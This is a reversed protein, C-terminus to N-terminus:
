EGPVDAEEEPLLSELHDRLRVMLAEHSAKMRKRTSKTNGRGSGTRAREFKGFGEDTVPPPDTVPIGLKKLRATLRTLLPFSFPACPFISVLIKFSELRLFFLFVTAVALVVWCVWVM